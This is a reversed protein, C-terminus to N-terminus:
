DSLEPVLLPPLLVGVEEVTLPKLRQYGQRALRVSRLACEKELLYYRNYAARLDNVATLNVTQLFSQWRSNFRHISECLQHLAQRIVRASSSPGPPCRLKPRLAVHLDRLIRLQNEDKLWPRIANGDGALAMLVGIRMRVMTLLDERQRRCLCLLQDFAEEVQRARRVFAPVDYQALFKWLFDRDDNRGLIAIEDVRNGKAEHIYPGDM